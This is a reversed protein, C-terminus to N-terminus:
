LNRTIDASILAAPGSFHIPIDEMIIKIAPTISRTSIKLEHLKIVVQRMVDTFKGKEFVRVKKSEFLDIVEKLEKNDKELGKIRLWQQNIEDELKMCKRLWSEREIDQKGKGTLYVKRWIVSTEMLTKMKMREEDTDKLLEYREKFM